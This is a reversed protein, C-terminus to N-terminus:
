HLSAKSTIRSAEHIHNSIEQRAYLRMYVAKYEAQWWPVRPLSMYFM